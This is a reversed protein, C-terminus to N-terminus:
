EVRSIRAACVKYEGTKTVRDFAHVTLVNTPTEVFHFPMWVTGSKVKDTVVARVVLEGRRTQVRVEKSDGVGIKEADLPNIEVFNDSLKQSIGASRRTMTGVNYHYLVRGTSLILPYETDTVEAPPTHEIAHFKGKGRIFCEKHLYKTGPHDCSPCPWQIGVRDIRRYNIGAFMPTLAAMEDWVQSPSGFKQHYGLLNMLEVLIHWDARSNGVPEIAKRVRQVRRETNTFTGDKELFSAGPLVIDAFKATECMFIDQVVLFELNELAARVHNLDPESMMLDEGMVYIAKIKGEVAKELTETTTYGPNDPISRGYAKEFKQNVETDTVKQYGPFVNPLAGMDCSGQVNNQGRIPNVGVSERGVNGCLMALNACSLVNDTGCTHETIGLTYFTGCKKGTAYIRAAERIYSAPVECIKEVAEPPYKMVKEKLEEFGETRYRIFDKNHLDETIIVNMMSNLLAIDTGPRLQLHVKAVKTFWIKRPDAVVVKAGNRAAKVMQYGIVPHAETPNAGILFLVDAHAIEEISNTMAGSGFAMALGAVTPAHCTRACQDVNNTGFVGRALKQMLYNEENTCRSSSVFGLSDSGYKANIEKLRSVVLDYAEEWTADVFKGNKRILPNKLRDPHNVFEYGFRGKVCLNGDNPVIGADSTIKVIQNDKVNVDMVCGVGCYGCTTRVKRLDYIRGKGIAMKETLAGTPCTSICQGCLVCTTDLLSRGYPTSVVSNFGRTIHDIAEAGVVERCIRACRGCNICKEYDRQIFLNTDKFDPIKHKAGGFAVQRIGFAYIYTQLPCDGNKECTMCDNPHDSLLLELVTKRVRVLRPTSTQVEMKDSVKTTCAPLLRPNGKIEVLCMRCGGSAELREDYCLHPIHIGNEKAIELITRGPIAHIRKGDIEVTLDPQPDDM